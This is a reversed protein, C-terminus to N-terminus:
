SEPRKKTRARQGGTVARAGEARDSAASWLNQRLLFLSLAHASDSPAMRM